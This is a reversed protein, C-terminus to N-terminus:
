LIAGGKRIGVLTRFVGFFAAISLGSGVLFSLRSCGCITSFVPLPLRLFLPALAIFVNRRLRAICPLSCLLLSPRVLVSHRFLPASGSLRRYLRRCLSLRYFLFRAYETHQFFQKGSLLSSIFLFYTPLKWISCNITVTNQHIDKRAHRDYFSFPPEILLM